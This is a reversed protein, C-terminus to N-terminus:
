QGIKRKKWMKAMEMLRMNNGKKPEKKEDDPFKYEYYEEWEGNDDNRKRKKERRPLKEDLMKINASNDAGEGAQNIEFDKWEELANARAEGLNQSKMSEYARKYINRAEEEKAKGQERAYNAFSLWIKLRPSVTLLREYLASVKEFNDVDPVGEQADRDEGGLSAEFDIYRRWIAESDDITDQTLALEYVGRCRQNEGIEEELEAYNVWTSSSSYDFELYKEYLKRTREIEGLALELEIYERFLKRKPCKGLATGLVKRAGALNKQRIEFKAYLVWVKAFSFKKHPVKDLLQLYVNRAREVDKALKEEFVAYFIWLYVYTKWYRKEMALPVHKLAREYTARALEVEGRNEALQVMDIWTNYDLPEAKIKEEYRNWRKETVAKEIGQRGALAHRKEFSIFEKHLEERQDQPFSDIAYKYIVRAREIEECREEFKAFRLFLRQSRRAAPLEEEKLAREFIGRAAPMDKMTHQEWSAYKIYSKETPHCACYREMVQRARQWEEQREEFKVYCMWGQQSPEWRMWRDFISRAVDVNEAIEEMFAYKYWFQEIRPLVTVARDWVNRARNIFKAEMEMEAYKLWLARDKYTIQLAREFISRARAFEGMRAEWSAYKIWAALSDRNSRVRNEHEKRKELKILELEEPDTIDHDTRDFNKVIESANAVRLIHEATIQVNAAARNRVQPASNSSM